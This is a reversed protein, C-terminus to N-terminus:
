IWPSATWSRTSSRARCISHIFSRSFSAGRRRQRLGARSSSISKRGGGISRPRWARATPIHILIRNGIRTYPLGDPQNMWRRVTRSHRGIENSFPELDVCDDVDRCFDFVALLAQRKPKPLVLFSYYFSTNRSM